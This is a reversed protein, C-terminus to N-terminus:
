CKAKHNGRRHGKINLHCIYDISNMFALNVGGWKLM